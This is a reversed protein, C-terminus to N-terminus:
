SNSLRRHSQVATLAGDMRDHAEILPVLGTVIHYFSSAPAPEDIWQGDPGVRDIWSGRLPIDLFRKLTEVAEVAGVLAAPREDPALRPAFTLLTRLRETQAWLRSSRDLVSGDASLSSVVRGDVIGHRTAFRHLRDCRSAHDCGLVSGARDLLYAWEYQHGPERVGGESPHFKWDGDYLEGVAGTVPDFLRRCALEVIAHAHREFVAGGDLEVWALLAELLHMHPNSRLPQSHPRAEAFGGAPHALMAELRDLLSEAEAKLTPARDLAVFGSAMAFLAFAQDYLDPQEVVSTGERTVAARYLGDPRKFRTLMFDLGLQVAERWPGEWGLRGAESYVFTQRAQVRLRKPLELANASRDLKDYWGGCRHDAGKEWWLPLAASFLWDLAWARHADLDPLPLIM